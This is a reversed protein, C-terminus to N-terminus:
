GTPSRAATPRHRAARWGTTGAPGDAARPEPLVSEDRHLWAVNSSYGFAGLLTTEDDDADTLLRLAEDAHTAIVVKDFSHHEGPGHRRTRHRDGRDGAQPQRRDGPHRDRVVDLRDTIADVYTRSGGVVTHWTPADGLVLFGHHRLFAFLYAAPYALAEQHGMSWVCSVIPLAYHTVFHRDFGHRDLFEGYTLTSGPDDDLLALAAKQFRRIASCCGGSGRTSCRPPAARLHRQRRARRRLEARM